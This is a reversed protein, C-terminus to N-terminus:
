FLVGGPRLCRHRHHRGHRRHQHEGRHPRHRLDDPQALAAITDDQMELMARGMADGVLMYTEANQNYHYDQNKPSEAITRWYKLIDVSKVTGAFEPHLAPNGVAM